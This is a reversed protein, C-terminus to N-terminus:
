MARAPVHQVGAFRSVEICPPGTAVAAQFAALTGTPAGGSTDGGHACVMPPEPLQQCFADATLRTCAAAEMRSLLYELVLGAAAHLCSNACFCCREASSGPHAIPSPHMQM